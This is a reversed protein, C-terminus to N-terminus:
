DAREISARRTADRRVTWGRPYSDTVDSGKRECVVEQGRHIMIKLIIDEDRKRREGANQSRKRERERKATKRKGNRRRRRGRERNMRPPKGRRTVISRSTKFPRSPSPPSGEKRRQCAGAGFKRACEGAIASVENVVARVSVFSVLSRFSFSLTLGPFSRLFFSFSFIMSVGDDGKRDRTELKKIGGDLKGTKSRLFELFIFIM